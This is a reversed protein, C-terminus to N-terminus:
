QKRQGPEWLGRVLSHSKLNRGIMQAARHSKSLGRGKGSFVSALFFWARFVSLSDEFTLVWSTLFFAVKM